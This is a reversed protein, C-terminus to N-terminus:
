DLQGAFVVKEQSNIKGILKISQCDYNFSYLYIFGSSSFNNLIDGENKGDCYFNLSDFYNAPNRNASIIYGGKDKVLMFNIPNIWEKNYQSYKKELSLHIAMLSVIVIIILITIYIFEVVVNSKKLGFM